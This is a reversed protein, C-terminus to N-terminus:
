VAYIDLIGLTLTYKHIDYKEQHYWLYKIAKIIRRRKAAKPSTGGTNLRGTWVDAPNTQKAKLLNLM